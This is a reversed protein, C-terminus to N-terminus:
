LFHNNSEPLEIKVAGNSTNKKNKKLKELIAIEKLREKRIKNIKAKEKATFVNSKPSKKMEKRATSCSTLSRKLPTASARTKSHDKKARKNIRNPDSKRYERLDTTVNAFMPANRRTHTQEHRPYSSKRDMETVNDEAGDRLYKNGKPVYASINKIASYNTTRKNYESM